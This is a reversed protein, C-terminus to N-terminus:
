EYVGGRAAFTHLIIHNNNKDLQYVLRFDGIRYRWLGDLEGKLPKITDGKLEIPNKCLEQIAELIRGQLKRDIKNIAKRFEDTMAFLWIKPYDYSISIDSVDPFYLVDNEDEEEVEELRDEQTQIELKEEVNEKLIEKDLRIANIKDGLDLISEIKNVQDFVSYHGNIFDSLSERISKWVDSVEKDQVDKVLLITKAKKISENFTNM